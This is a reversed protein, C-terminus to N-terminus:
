LNGTGGCNLCPVEEDNRVRLEHGIISFPFSQQLATHIEKGLWFLRLTRDDYPVAEVGAHELVNKRDCGGLQSPFWYGDRERRDKLEDTRLKQALATSYTM